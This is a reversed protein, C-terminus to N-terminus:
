WIKGTTARDSIFVNHVIEAGTIENNDLSHGVYFQLAYFTVRVIYIYPCYLYFLNYAFINWDCVMM